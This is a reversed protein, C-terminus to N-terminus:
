KRGSLFTHKLDLSGQLYREVQGAASLSSGWHFLDWERNSVLVRLWVNAHFMRFFHGRRWLHYLMTLRAGTRYEKGPGLFRKEKKKPVEGKWRRIGNVEDICYWIGATVLMAILMTVIFGWLQQGSQNLQQLNIGFLSTALNTTCLCIRTDHSSDNLM